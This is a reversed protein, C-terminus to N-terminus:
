DYFEFELGEVRVTEGDRVGASRLATYVGIEGLVRQLYRLSYPNELDLRRILRSLGSGTVVFADDARTVTYDSLDITPRADGKPRYVARREGADAAVQGVRPAGAEETREATLARWAALALSRVGEGTAGSVPYVPCGAAEGAEKLREAHAAADPLDMKNLALIQPRQLLSPDHLSLERRTIAFDDVPDRGETGGADVVYIIARTREIHRLFAHGLGKGAHAGEILGPVDAIVFSQGLEVSVVGLNPVLTTFPYEAIQPRAASMAAILTSKGANPFGVLAVDALLKLELDIWTAEGPEGKEAFGPAQRTSSVFHANGRGGRGGRAAVVRQGASVLDAVIEGDSRVITGPPVRLVVDAGDKGHKSGGQGHQGRGAKHHSQHRFDILTGAQADVEIIVSGGNGGDGGNPGGNPVYKERRFSVCGNGGDGAAVHIRAHDLFM